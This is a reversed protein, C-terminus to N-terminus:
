DRKQLLWAASLLLLMLGSGMVAGCGDSQERDTPAETLPPATTIQETTAQEETDAPKGTLTLNVFDRVLFDTGNFKYAALIQESEDADIACPLVGLTAGNENEILIYGNKETEKWKKM